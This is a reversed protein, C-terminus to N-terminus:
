LVRPNCLICTLWLFEYGYDCRLASIASVAYPACACPVRGPLGSVAVIALRTTLRSDVPVASHRLITEGSIVCARTPIGLPSEALPQPHFPFSFFFSGFPFSGAERTAAGDVGVSHLCLIQPNDLGCLQFQFEFSPDNIQRLKSRGALQSCIQLRICRMRLMELPTRARQFSTSWRRARM